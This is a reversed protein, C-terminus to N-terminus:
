ITMETTDLMAKWQILKSVRGLFMGYDFSDLNLLRMLSRYNPLIILQYHSAIMLCLGCIRKLSFLNMRLLAVLNSM